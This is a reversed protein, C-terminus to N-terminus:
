EVMVGQVSIVDICAYGANLHVYRINLNHWHSIPMGTCIKCLMHKVHAGDTEDPGTLILHAAVPFSLSLNSM